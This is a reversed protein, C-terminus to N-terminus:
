FIDGVIEAASILESNSADPVTSVPIRKEAMAAVMVASLIPFPRIQINTGSRM